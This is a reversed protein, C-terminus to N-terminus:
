GSAGFGSGLGDLFGIPLEISSSLENVLVYEALAFYEALWTINCAQVLQALSQGSAVTRTTSDTCSIAFRGSGDSTVLSGTQNLDVTIGPIGNPYLIQPRTSNFIATRYRSVAASWYADLDGVGKKILAVAGDFNAKLVKATQDKAQAHGLLASAAQNLADAHLQKRTAFGSNLSYNTSDFPAMLERALSSLNQLKTQAKGQGSRFGIGTETGGSAVGVASINRVFTDAVLGGLSVGGPLPQTQRAHNTSHGDARTTYGRIVAMNTLLDAMPRAAGSGSAVNYQFLHPVQYGGRNVTYYTTQGNNVFATAVHPNAVMSDAAAVKLWQDFGWRGPGGLCHINIYNWPVATAANAKRVMGDIVWALLQPLAHHSMFVGGIAAGERIFQRRNRRM